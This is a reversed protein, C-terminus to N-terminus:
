PLQHTLVCLLLGSRLNISAPLSTILNSIGTTSGFTLQSNDLPYELGISTIGSAQSTLPLLSLSDGPLGDFTVPKDPRILFVETAGDVLRIHLGELGSHALLLINALTQDWRAGLAGLILVESVGRQIAIQLALELDTFDKRTPYVIVETGASKLASVHAQSLSDMDGVLLDPTLGLEQCHRAGGDAAMIWASPPLKHLGGPPLHLAGNAFLIIRM